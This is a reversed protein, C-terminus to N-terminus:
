QLRASSKQTYLVMGELQFDAWATLDNCIQAESYYIAIQICNGVSQFYVPHWLRDQIVELPAILPDYPYTELVNTGMIADTGLPGGSNILSDSSSSPYYDVTVAGSSTKLVGFDIRALHVDTDQNVYPNWQKSLININSVRAITGGGTYTGTFGVPITITNADVYTVPYIGSPYNDNPTFTIGQANEIAIYDGTPPNLLTASQLTHNIVTLQSVDGNLTIDTIQMSPANRAVNAAAQVLFTFGQQNGAVVQRANAQEVGDAWAAAYVEWTDTTSEWTPGTQQEFYGFCTICDDNFAWSDNQYNYVLVKTPFVQEPNQTDTPFTWYVMESFYDRIGVVRQPGQNADEINFVQEPIKTDIREVNSGNCAHIGTNGVAIIQKDFPVSSLQADCGLETNIKQWVFPLVQNGTYALEWTSREFFVILRDKIFEASIIQEETSADIFGGGDAGTQNPELYANSALPSGNHSYRCRNVYNVNTLGDSSVEVTNLLVLRDKFPLVIRATRIINQADTGAVLFKPSFKSWTSGDNTYWIPDDNTADVAGNYNTVFFNSVFMTIINATAGRWNSVWFFNIDGGHWVPSSGTGSRTWAGGAFTYAFQTDFAYSPQNNIAGVQYNAFGMVPQAPYFYVPTAAAAGTFVYAGTTTDFTHTSAGGTSLMVAPTGLANVTYFNNGISFMQGIGFINGPATGSASGGGDVTDVLIRLRSSLQALLGVNSGGMLQGGFRKRLRGRFIYANNLQEFADEQILWPRLNTQLGTNLPAILFRDFAM